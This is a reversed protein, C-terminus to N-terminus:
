ITTIVPWNARTALRAMKRDPNIAFPKGVANLLHWDQHSDGFASCDALQIGHKNCWATALALKELALPHREPPAATFFGGASHCETAIYDNMELTQCIPKALFTPAGTLLVLTYGEKRCAELHSAMEGFLMQKINAKIWQEGLANLANAPLGCYFAKNKRGTHRGYVLFWRPFFWLGAIIQQRSILGGRWLWALFRRESGPAPILTGDLDYFAAAGTM